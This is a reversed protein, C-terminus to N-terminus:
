PAIIPLDPFYTRFRTADRTLLRHGSVSAHAGILFDPLMASRAGGSQRYRLFAQGAIFGAEWPIHFRELGVLADDLEGASAFGPAVEAYVVPNVCVGGRRMAEALANGSWERWQPDDSFIDILVSSDVLTFSPEM